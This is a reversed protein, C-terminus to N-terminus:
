KVGLTQLVTAFDARAAKVLMVSAQLQVAMQGLVAPSSTATVNKAAAGVQSTANSMQHNADTLSSQISGAVSGATKGNTARAQLKTALKQMSANIAMVATNVAVIQTKSTTTGSVTASASLSAMQGDLAAVDRNIMSDSMPDNANMVPTSPVISNSVAGTQSAPATTNLMGSYWVGGLVVLIIVVVTIIWKTSTSM